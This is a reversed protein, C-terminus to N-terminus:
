TELKIKTKSELDEDDAAKRKGLVSELAPSDLKPVRDNGRGGDKTAEAFCSAHYIKDGVKRADM